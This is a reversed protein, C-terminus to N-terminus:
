LETITMRAKEVYVYCPNTLLFKLETFGKKCNEPTIVTSGSIYAITNRNCACGELSEIIENQEGNQLELNVSVLMEEQSPKLSFSYSVLVSSANPLIIRNQAVNEEEAKWSFPQEIDWCIGPIGYFVKTKRSKQSNAKIAHELKGKLLIQNTEIKDLISGVSENVKLIEETSACGGQNEHLTGLIYQIKEGEANLIHSLALEEMAISAVLMSLAQEWCIETSSEPFEPISM